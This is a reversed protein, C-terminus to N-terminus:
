NSSFSTQQRPDDQSLHRSWMYRQVTRKGVRIGLKILEGRVRQAGWLLNEAALRKILAVTAPAIQPRTLATASTARWMLRFAHRHWRLLTDPQVLLLAAQGGPVLRALLVRLRRDRPTFVPRKVQRQLVILQQCLLANEGILAAKSQRCRGDGRARALSGTAPRTQWLLWRHMGRHCTNGRRKIVGLITTGRDQGGRVSGVDVQLSIPM